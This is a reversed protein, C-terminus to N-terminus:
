AGGLKLDQIRGQTRVYVLTRFDHIKISTNSPLYCLICCFYIFICKVQRFTNEEVFTDVIDDKNEFVHVHIIPRSGMSGQCKRAAGPGGDGLGFM